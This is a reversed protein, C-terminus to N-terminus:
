KSKFHAHHSLNDRLLHITGPTKEIYERIIEEVPNKEDTLMDIYHEAHECELRDLAKVAQLEFNGIENMHLLQQCNSPLIIRKEKDCGYCYAEVALRSENTKWILEIQYLDSYYYWATSRQNLVYYWHPKHHVLFVDSMLDPEKKRSVVDRIFFNKKDYIAGVNYLYGKQSVYHTPSLQMKPKIVVRGTYDHVHTLKLLENNYLIM